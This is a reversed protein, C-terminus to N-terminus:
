DEHFGIIKGTSGECYRRMERLAAEFDPTRLILSQSTDTLRETAMQVARHVWEKLFAPTAGRSSDVLAAVDLPSIDYTRLYHDLYRQRLRDGPPGLYVCQSIRGPRDKIAAEMREIANTTLIVGVEEFPRLGDMQDLLEGLVSSYMNIDRAAFVLDVDELIILAPQLMRGLNFISKIHLLANGAVVIRTAEHLKGCLYRCAFTKGTGPPGYLLLGRRLPVGHAKLITRRQYLDVVNRQLVARIEEEIVIDDDPVTEEHRFVVRL